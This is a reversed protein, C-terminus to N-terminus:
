INITDSAYHRTTTIKHNQILFKCNAGCLYSFTAVHFTIIFKWPNQFSKSVKNNIVIHHKQIFAIWAELPEVCAIITTTSDHRGYHMFPFYSTNSWTNLGMHHIHLNQLGLTSKFVKAEFTVHKIWNKKGWL